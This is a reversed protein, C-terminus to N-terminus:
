WDVNLRILVVTNENLMGVHSLVMWVHFDKKCHKFFCHVDGVYSLVMEQENFNAWM